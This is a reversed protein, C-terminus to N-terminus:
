RQRYWRGRGDAGAPAPVQTVHGSNILTRLGRSVQAPDLDLQRALDGPRRPQDLAALLRQPVAAAQQDYRAAETHLDLTVLAAALSGDLQRLSTQLAAVVPTSTRRELRRRLRDLQARLGAIRARDATTIANLAATHLATTAEVLQAPEGGIAADLDAALHTTDIVTM